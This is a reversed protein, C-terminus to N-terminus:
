QILLIQHSKMIQPEENNQFSRSLLTRAASSESIENEPNNVNQLVKQFFQRGKASCIWKFKQPIEVSVNSMEEDKCLESEGKM